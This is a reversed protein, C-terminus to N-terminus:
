RMYVIEYISYMTEGSYESAEGLKFFHCVFAWHAETIADKSIDSRQTGKTDGDAAPM